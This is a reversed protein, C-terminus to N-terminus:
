GMIPSMLARMLMHRTALNPVSQDINAFAVSYVTLYPLNKLELASSESLEPGITEMISSMRARTTTYMKVLNPSSQNINTSALTNVLLDYVSPCVSPHISPHVGISPSHDCYSM